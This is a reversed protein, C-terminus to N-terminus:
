KCEQGTKPYVKGANWVWGLIRFSYKGREEFWVLKWQRVASYGLANV